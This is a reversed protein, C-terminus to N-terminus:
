RGIREYLIGYRIGHTSVIINWIKFYSMIKSLLLIGQLLIDERGKEMGPLNRRQVVTLKQLTDIIEQIDNYSMRFGHIIRKNYHELGLCITALTTITGATGILTYGKGDFPTKIYGNLFSNLSELEDKEPPDHKIFQETLKVSGMPLSVYDRFKEKDGQIIETSGGGIDVILFKEETVTNDHKVSLYTYFAEEYESIINVSIGLRERVHTVFTQGNNAERLAHTGVCYIEQVNHSAIIRKYEALATFTRKMAHEALYGNKKLGEGLRTITSMDCIDQPTQETDIILLLVTNTGVDIAACKM